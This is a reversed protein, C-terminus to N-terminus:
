CCLCCSCCHGDVFIFFGEVDSDDNMMMQKGMPKSHQQHNFKIRSIIIYKLPPRLAQFSISKFEIISFSFLVVVEVLVGARDVIVGTTYQISKNLEFM